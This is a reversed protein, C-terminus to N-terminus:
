RAPHATGLLAAHLAAPELPSVPRAALWAAAAAPDHGTRVTTGRSRLADLVGARIPTDRALLAGALVVPETAGRAGLSDLTRVLRRVADDVVATAEPDGTRAAACVLPALAGIEALPLSQAWRILEGASAAGARAAISAALPSSWNRVAARIARLGVWRGSGEDGLLWGLGDATRVIRGAVVEAAIAGTGAILVTGAPAPTGAAFATIVDGLVTMPCALGAATWMRAFAAAVPPDAAASTGALGLVGTVVARPDNGTLARRLTAGIATAAAPGASLPNGAGGTARGVIAGTVTAVVARSSTGGADVGVVLRM